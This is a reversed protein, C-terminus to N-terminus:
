HKQKFLQTEVYYSKSYYVVEKTTIKFEEVKYFFFIFNAFNKFDTKIKFQM